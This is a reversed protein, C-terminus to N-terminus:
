CDGSKIKHYITSITGDMTEQRDMTFATITGRGPTRICSPAFTRARGEVARFTVAFVDVGNTFRAKLQPEWLEELKAKDRVLEAQGSLSVYPQSKPDTFSVNVYPKNEIERVKPGSGYTFFWVDGDFEVKKNIAM